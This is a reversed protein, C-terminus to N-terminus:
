EVPPKRTFEFRTGVMEFGLREYLLRPWDEADAVLFTLEDGRELSAATAARVVASALGAGRHEPAAFVQDVEGVGDGDDLLLAYAGPAGNREALFCRAGLVRAAAADAETLEAASGPSLLENHWREALPRVADHGVERVRVPGTAGRRDAGRRLVMLLLHDISWGAAEFDARLHEGGEALELKRHRLGARGQLRDAFALLERADLGPAVRDVLLLNLDWKLAHEPTFFATGHAFPEARSTVRELQARRVGRLRELETRTTTTM